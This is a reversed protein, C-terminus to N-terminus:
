PRSTGAFASGPCGCRGAARPWRPPTTPGPRPRGGPAAWPGRSKLPRAARVRTDCRGLQLLFVPSESLPVRAYMRRKGTGVLKVLDELAGQAIGLSVAAMHLAFHLLPAVLGAGPVQSTGSFIDLTNEEPCFVDQVEIDHSGTGKLGLVNWTDLIRVEDSRLLMGRMRPVGEAPGPLPQGERLVVCNGFLWDAHQCGSAFGWRGTVRYGGTDEAAQGQANFGGAVIVDPGASYLADFRERPLLALLLPSESGIMTTWGTAGDARALTELIEMGTCLDV